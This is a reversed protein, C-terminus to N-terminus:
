ESGLTVERRHVSPAGDGKARDIRIVARYVGAPWKRDRRKGVYGIWEAMPQEFRQEQEAILRRDPGRLQLSLRDGERLGYFLGWFVLAEADVRPPAAKVAGSKVGRQEPPRASFGAALLPGREHGLRETAKASWLGNGETAAQQCREQPSAGTFPDVTAGQHRVSFEVHPFETVGSLGIEGLVTGAQVTQGPRVAVSGLRLHSYQTQWDDGHQIIVSNGAQRDAVVEPGLDDPFADPMGDRVAIVRGPAAATVEVGTAMEATTPVRIDTGTHGDYTLHGCRYDRAQGSRGDHDVYNQIV